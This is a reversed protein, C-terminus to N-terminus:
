GDGHFTTAWHAWSHAAPLTAVALAVGIALASAALVLRATRGGVAVRRGVESGLLPPLARVHWLVHAAMAFFWIVFSAKHVGLVIGGQPGLAVLAIGSAFLLATTLLVLPALLIRIPMPPPGKLLYERSGAYYRFFRYGTSGVKLAIPPVLLMGIFVHTSVLERMRLITAGEAALLVLLVGAVLATLRENGAAGGSERVGVDLARQRPKEATAV